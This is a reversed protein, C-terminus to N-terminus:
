SQGLERDLLAFISEGDAAGLDDDQGAGRQRWLEVLDHLRTAVAAREVDDVDAGVLNRELRDLEDALSVPGAPVAEAFLRAALHEALALPTPQDFVLSAPLDLGTAENLRNRIEVAALSEFGLDRFAKRADIGAPEAHRLVVAVQHRVLDLLADLREGAPLGGLRQRWSGRPEATTPSPGIAHEAILEALLPVPRDNELSRNEWNFDVVVPATRDQELIRRLAALALEPAMPRAGRRRLLEGVVGDAMGGEDWHGWGISTAPLGQARRHHALADLFANGPAYNGQGIVGFTGAFSSFLVFASLATDKTLEHLNVAGDVKVRIVRDVQELTLSDLLADDLIAATHVVASLPYREPIGALVGALEARDSVDCAAITVEAGSRALDAALAEAGAAERGRRSTVLIHEAGCEALWRAVQGGLAGTGGTVLVTGSPRWHDAQQARLPARVLRAVFTGAERVAFEDEDAAGALVAALGAVSRTDPTGPLDVLGGWREPHEVGVVRGLGWVMAQVPASVVDTGGVTVAGSTVCWIPTTFGAEGHAQVFTLTHALGAPTSGFPEAFREDLALASLTGVPQGHEDALERLRRALHDRDLDAGGLDVRVVTAGHEDLARVCCEVAGPAAGVPAVLLWVGTLVPASGTSVPRWEVRHSWSDLVSDTHRDRHWRALSPLLSKLSDRESADSLALTGALGDLDAGDVADWFDKDAGAVPAQEAAVPWYRARQFAYTPLPVRRTPRGSFWSSWDVPAGRVYAQALSLLFRDPGGDNRRLSGVVAAHERAEDITEQVGAALVPHAGIEVFLRHRDALLARVTDAFGVPMRANEFWYEPGLDIGDVVSGTVTSYFPIDGSVPRIPALLDILRDHLPDVQTGHSAVTAAVIRARVGDAECDAVLEALVATEGSVTTASPGNVGAVTLRGGWRALRARVAAVPAMVSAIAGNGALEDAFLKSRLAVVRAADELSLAGAVFAAAVEGQSHGVVADPVVGCSRWLEALAVMVAFLVPQLVEIRDLGPAGRLVETVSWDVFPALAWECDALRDAFVPCSDILDLGMGLWQAGQGPFIFVVKGEVDAVGEVLRPSPRGAALDGLGAALVARDEAVVVARHELASRTTALSHGLESVTLGAHEDLHSRLKAAQEALAGPDRASLPIPVCGGATGGDAPEAEPEVHELVVHANTGSIGFSSVAGRRPAHTVPWDRQETLLRLMGSSWDVESTPRDAHLTKPLVGNHMALVMKIVGAAGSAAQTHGINSKVSGLWLPRERGRGYTALLAQAEIPDGLATGTGHAEVVDVDSVGLGANALAQRIVRQQSPGNPATLGNSAGDQNVASGRVVALVRHGNRRADSLREVLLMGVGESWGTGDAGEAFSKCRGDSALAGQRILEGFIGPTAMVTVGGALALSCEGQRLAQCAMHLAVLSSSCATDLTVAPGEFGFTYSIRGSAVSGAAGTSLYGEAQEPSASLAMGYDHYMVGTYVATDSGRLSDAPIGARELVEWSAELLLRQQPDMALAERPSIGFLGADFWGADYLFGGELVYKSGPRSRAAQALQDNDWGRDAPFASIGDGGTALLAWLEEPSRVGGPFRCSMAVIAVPEDTEARVRGVTAPRSRGGLEDVLHEVLAEPTPHDFVLTAPLRVGLGESLRDRLEVATLSDFGLEKFARRYGIQDADTQQLVLAVEALVADLIAARQDAEPLRAIRRGLPEAGAQTAPKGRVLAKLLAPVPAGFLDPNLGVAVLLAKDTALALDFLAMGREASLAAVGGRALRRRAEGDLGAAMGAGTAWPGWALAVAPLGAARRHSALADLFANAAAYNAQGANGFVGSASSYLVFADLDADRTLEHLHWAGDVKPRLVEAVREPTLEGFLGDDLVGATHVVATLPHEAPIGALLRAVAERDAVDCRAVRAEAGLAALEDVLGPANGTRSALLIRRVGHVEALHRAVVGGLAGTGGTILVTGDPNWATAREGPRARVLRPVLMEGSRLALRPEGSAVAARVAASVARSSEGSGDVEVLVIRDPHESQVSRLMGSVAAGALDEGTVVVLRDAVDHDEALWARVEALAARVRDHVEPVVAGGRSETCWVVRVPVDAVADGPAAPVWDVEFLSRAAGRPTANVDRSSVPRLVLSDITCVPLGDGDAMLVRVRDRDLRTLRVRLATARDAHLAVGTWTFPLHASDADEGAVGLGMPHMAADLLAPHVGYAGAEGALAVEAYLEEGQRWVARLCQFAPGYGFGIVAAVDAYFSSVDVPEAGPPPWARLDGPVRPRDAAVRGGAYRVWPATADDERRAFLTLTREDPAGAVLRLLVTGDEPAVLPVGIDFEDLGHGGLREAAWLFLELMASGPVLVTGLVEHDALWPHARLSIRGTFVMGGDEPLELCADLFPHEAPALGLEAPDDYRSTPELWLRRRQFAYTPLATKTTSYSALVAAWDVAVGRVHLRALAGEVAAGEDRDSRLAPIFEADGLGSLAAGPGVELFTNVGAEGLAGVADAFRVTRRVHRIWHEPSILEAAEAIRGTVTSVLPLRPPHPDMRAIEARFGALMPEMLPSHFAHSVNLRKTRLGLARCREAVAAVAHEAGSVVVSDPGNVAAVSIDDRRDLLEAVEAEAARVSLMAGTAPLDRMLRGRAAILACADDLALVGAVHAATIEGVSHGALFAPRVGWHELLRYLAVEVAFIGAQAFDTRNLLEDDEAFVVDRLPRDLFPRLGDCVADFANAFPPHAEYLQRGMGVRQTGQGSFVVALAGEVTAGTLLGAHTSGSVLAALRAEITKADGGLLVARHALAARTTALSYAIDNVSEDVDARVHTLLRAAQARLAAPTHGSLVWPAAEGARPASRPEAQRPPPEELIVHANTGSVGFSSVGARRPTGASPWPVPETLLEVAGAAWDVHSTPTDVHLTRPLLGHRMAMLMKIIGAVGAAAQTHGLNSKLSGLRLPAATRRSGYTALLAQAEIPDGLTTGTGHAEVVDVGDVSLTANALAQRIVREQAPGNPATLGNSAGDSNVASGKLVGHVPHGDRVATSLPELLLVGAGESWVTGDAAEAFPKCRGDRALGGQKAFERFGGPTTMVTVGGVLAMSCEGAQISKAALHLAVLSSSCATDLTVSPGELGLVYSIRGSLVAAPAGTVGYGEAEPSRVIFAAYDQVSSGVFVGVRQGRLSGPDIAANELAEWATELLLRQQPDMAKAERPSIGFFEPDFEGADYLFGGRRAAGDGAEAPWGRDTPFDGIADVGDAVLRWLSEPSDIGGPYRCAMGAVAIPEATTGALELNRKRLRENDVMSTRLAHVVQEFSM